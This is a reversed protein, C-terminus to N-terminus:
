VREKTQYYGFGKDRYICSNKKLKFAM